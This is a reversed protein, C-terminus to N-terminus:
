LLAVTGTQETKRVQALVPASVITKARPASLNSAYTGRLNRCTGDPEALLLADTGAHENEHITPIRCDAVRAARERTHKSITQLRNKHRVDDNWQTKM